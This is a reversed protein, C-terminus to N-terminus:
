QALSVVLLLAYQVGKWSDKPDFSETLAHADKAIGGGGITIAPIGMWMAANSDTSSSTLLPRLGVARVAGQAAVVIGSEPPTQGVPRDGVLQIDATITGNNKWRRNEEKVAENVAALIKDRTDALSKADTSRMDVDFWGEFPISNISTGGGIVGVNFTTKPNVPVQIEDIKAVARGLAHIPNVLGFAGYSHGGPGKFTIHYRYSGVGAYVIQAPDSGDISIFYDVQDKLTEKLLQKTGRLDGLGEEGVDAAFTITGPTQVNTEQLARITALLAALGRTDDGIGPAKLVNVDRKVTVDTGEPFVTDLHAQILVNPRTKAGPRTGVVNGIKDIFVNKLGYQEFLAKVAAARKEEKFPPAPIECLKVQLEIMEPENKVVAALAAKITPDNKLVAPDGPAAFATALPSLIISGLLLRLTRMSPCVSLLRRAM